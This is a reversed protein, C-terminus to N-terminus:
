TGHENVKITEIYGDGTRNRDWIVLTPDVRPMLDLGLAVAVPAPVAPVIHIQRTTPRDRGVDGRLFAQYTRRFNALTVRSGLITPDADAGELAIEYVPADALGDPLQSLHVKGSLSLVLVVRMTDSGDRLLRTSTSLSPADNKWSWSQTDRHRQFLEIPLKNSLKSGLYVLLPIPGLAFVALQQIPAARRLLAGSSDGILRTATEWYAPDAYDPLRTLDITEIDRTIYWPSVASQMQARTVQVPQRDILAKLVLATSERDPRTETLEWVRDEHAKKFDRLVPVPYRVPERDILTHCAGCLLMLNDLANVAVPDMAADGRPGEPSFAFIHAMEAFNGPIGTVPHELLYRNCGDFECRGGAQVYLYLRVPGSIGRARRVPSTTAQKRVAM